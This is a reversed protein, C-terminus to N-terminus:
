NLLAEIVATGDKGGYGNSVAKKYLELSERLVGTPINLSEANEISTTLGQVYSEISALIEDYNHATMKDIVYSAAPEFIAIYPEYVDPALGIKQAFATMYAVNIGALMSGVLAVAELKRADGADGVRTVEACFSNFVPSIKEFTNESAGLRFVGESSEVADAGVEISMDAFAGGCKEVINRMLNGEEITASSASIIIKDKFASKPIGELTELVAKGDIMIFISMDSDHVAEAATDVAVAGLSVLAKTRSKTRNYVILPIGANLIAKAMATGMLGTGLVSITM